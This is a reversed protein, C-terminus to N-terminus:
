RGYSSRSRSDRAGFGLAKKLLVNGTCAGRADALYRGGPTFFSLRIGRECCAGMLAPSAGAYSFLSIGELAHLPFRGLADSGVKAVVNEGDLTLYADETFVYLTNKIKEM